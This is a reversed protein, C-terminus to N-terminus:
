KKDCCTSKEEPVGCCSGEDGGCSCEGIDMDKGRLAASIMAWACGVGSQVEIAQVPCNLACAGCEMCATPRALEAHEPGDAFVGHPCVQTCRKCNICLATDLKLTTEMYSNLM